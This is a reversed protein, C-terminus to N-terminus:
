NQRIIGDRLTRSPFIGDLVRDLRWAIKWVVVRNLLWIERDIRRIVKAKHGFDRAGLYRKLWMFFDLRKAFYENKKKSMAVDSSAHQRYKLWLKSSFFVTTVMYAKILFAQDEYVSPFQDEFGGAQDVIFKRVLVDSPCPGASRGVPYMLRLAEPPALTSDPLGGSQILLDKDGQWSSWYNVVGCVLGVEPRADMIAIQEELKKETWVDDADIFAIFEGRAADIGLNRTKSMGCNQNGPHTLYKVSPLRRSYSQAIETSSDSSGDDVLLLEFDRCTQSLVSEVAEVMFEQANYFIMVVSVRPTAKINPM